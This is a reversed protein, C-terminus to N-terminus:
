PLTMPDDEFDDPEDDLPMDQEEERRWHEIDSARMTKKSAFGEKFEARDDTDRRPSGKRRDRKDERNM